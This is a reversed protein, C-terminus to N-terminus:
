LDARRARDKGVGRCRTRGRAARPWGARSRIMTMTAFTPSATRRLKGNEIEMLDLFDEFPDKKILGGAQRSPLHRGTGKFCFWNHNHLSGWHFFGISQDRRTAATHGAGEALRSWAEAEAIWIARSNPESM